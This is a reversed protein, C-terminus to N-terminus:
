RAARAGVRCGRRCGPPPASRLSSGPTAAPRGRALCAETAGDLTCREHARIAEGRSSGVDRGARSGPQRQPARPRSWPPRGPRGRGRRCRPASARRARRPRRRCRCSGATRAASRRGRRGRRPARRRRRRDVAHQREDEPRDRDDDRDLVHREDHAGVVVALAADHGQDRQDLPRPEGPREACITSMESPM